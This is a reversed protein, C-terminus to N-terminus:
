FSLQFQRKAGRFTGLSKLIVPPGWAVSTEFTANNAMTPATTTSHRINYLQWEVGTDAAYVAGVSDAANGALKIQLVVVGAAATATALVIALIIATLLMTVGHESNHATNQRFKESFFKPVFDLVWCMFKTHKKSLGIKYSNTLKM